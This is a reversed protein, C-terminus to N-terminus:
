LVLQFPKNIKNDVIYVRRLSQSYLGGWEAYKYKVPSWQWDGFEFGYQMAHTHGSLTLDIFPYALVEARWHSPDHSLLITFLNSELNKSGLELDGFQPFPPLGWNEVGIIQIKESDLEIITNQNDLLTFGIQQHKAKLDILNQEEEEKSKWNVYEGYDHNGLIAFRGHKARLKKLTSIFEDVEGAYNSVMDGTFVVLDPEEANIQTVIKDIADINNHFSGIHLDSIQIIKFNNFSKPIKKSTILQERVQFNTKNIFMGHAVLLFSLIALGFGIYNLFFYRKFILFSLSDLGYFLSINFKPLYILALVGLLTYFHNMAFIDGVSNVKLIAILFFVVTIFITLFFIAKAFVNRSLLQNFMLNIARYSLLDNIIIFLFITITIILIRM